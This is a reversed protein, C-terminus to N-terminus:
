YRILVSAPLKRITLEGAPSLKVRTGNVSASKIKKQLPSVVVVGGAPVSVNGGVSLQVSSGAKRMSYSIAGYYTPLNMVEIGDPQALWEESVGAGVVLANDREREYVFM